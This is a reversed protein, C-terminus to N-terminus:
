TTGIPRTPWPMAEELEFAIELLRREHGFPAAVQVGVPLGDDSRGLPLSVAPSGSVNQLPTVAMFRLLRVLQERPEVDASLHGVPPAAHNLVPSVLLDYTRFFPEHDRVLRRLRRVAFPAREIEALFRRVLFKTFPETRSADFGQGFLRRGTVTLLFATMAWDLLFDSAFRTDLPSPVVEVHHGLGALVDATRAVVQRTDAAVQLGQYGDLVVAIRLREGGPGIVHGIPPLAPDHFAREATAYYLATDRVSRSLVGQVVIPVPVKAMAPWDILRGRSPKLGVLGCCAAPIRISGGGDNGHALPVVGAAVFAATGGSSGGVTHGTNWPNRTAGFRSSETSATLGFEPLTTKAIPDAGFSLFQAVWPSSMTAPRDVVANSGHTARYGELDENDKILTPLGALPADPTAGWTQAPDAAGVWETVANLAPNVSRGRDIAASRLEAASVERRALRALLGTADDTGLADNGIADVQRSPDTM